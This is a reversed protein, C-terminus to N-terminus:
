KLKKNQPLDKKVIKGMGIICQKGININNKLISGSGIFTNKKINVKGNVIAGTSIHCNNEIITDHEIISGSNIICNSGIKVNSNIFVNNFINTGEGIIADKAVVATEAIIKPIIFGIKKIKEYLRFRNKYNKIQGIGISCYKIGKKKYLNKLDKDSGIIPYGLLKVSALNDIIGVIKFKKTSNILNITSITHGGSGILIIKKKM